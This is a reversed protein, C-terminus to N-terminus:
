DIDLFPTPQLYSELRLKHTLLEPYSFQVVGNILKNAQTLICYCIDQLHFSYTPYHSSTSTM